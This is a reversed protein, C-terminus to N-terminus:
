TTEATGDLILFRRRVEGYKGNDEVVDTVRYRIGEATLFLRGLKTSNLDARWRVRWASETVLRLGGPNILFDVTKPRFEAWIEADM